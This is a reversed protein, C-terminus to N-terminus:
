PKEQRIIKADAIRQRAHLRLHHSRCLWRVDLPKSYDDHHAHVDDITGCVECPKPTLHGARTAYGVKAHARHGDKHTLHYQKAAEKERSLNKLYHQRRWAKRKEKNAKVYARGRENNCKKCEPKRGEKHMSSPYFDELRQKVGCKSCTRMKPMKSDGCFLGTTSLANAISLVCPQQSTNVRRRDPATLTSNKDM